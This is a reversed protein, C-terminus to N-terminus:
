AWKKFDLDDPTPNGSELREARERRLRSMLKLDALLNEGGWNHGVGDFHLGSGTFHLEVASLVNQIALLAEKVKFRSASALPKATRDLAHDLDLHAILRNRWDQAFKIKERAISVLDDLGVVYKSAACKALTELSLTKRYRVTHGDAFRSLYLLLNEWQMDMTSKFFGPAIENMVDFREQDKGFLEEFEVWRMHLLAFENWLRHYIGGLEEGMSKKFTDRSEEYTAM